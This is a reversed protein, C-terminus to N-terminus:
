VSWQEFPRGTLKRFRAAEGKLEASLVALLESELSPTRLQELPFARSGALSTAVGRPLRKLVPGLMFWLRAGEPTMREKAQGVNLEADINPPMMPEVGLFRFVALLTDQRRHRLDDQELILIRDAPFHELWQELQTAYRSPAVYRNGPQDLDGLSVELSRHELVMAYAQMYHSIVREVPDRVIYIMFADPVLSAVRRPVDQIAPFFTYRPSADGRIRATGTFAREYRTVQQEWPTLLFLEPEGPAMEIEPHGDLYHHLSTTGCKAAGIVFLSPLQSVHPAPSPIKSSRPDNPM